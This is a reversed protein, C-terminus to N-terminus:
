TGSLDSDSGHTQSRFAALTEDIRRKLWGADFESPYVFKVQNAVDWDEWTAPIGVRSFLPTGPLPLPVNFSVEDLPLSLAFSFTEEIATTDEGPYGVIFFGATGIGADHFLRVASRGDEVSSRKGMLALTQDSGSELGLYVRVCGARHMLRAMDLNLRDVRSLCTWTLPHYRAIMKECFERLYRDDLTFCDDAIWLRDYGLAAIVDIERFVRDLDTKRFHNGWVPRSCFDCSFPCGRTVMLNTVRVGTNKLWFEQYKGHAFRSRDPLPLANLEGETQHRPPSAIVTTGQIRCIGPYRDPDMNELRFKRDVRLYDNCFAPFSCDGEGQFVCDFWTAFRVPDVTPFPGGAVFLTEPLRPRLADLLAFANRSMTVMISVAVISPQQAVIADVMRDFTDFTGDHIGAPIGLTRLGAALSAIGLPPFLIDVPDREYFYPFVLAVGG